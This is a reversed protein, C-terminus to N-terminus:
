VTTLHCISKTSRRTSRASVMGWRSFTKENKSGCVCHNGIAFQKWGHLQPMWQEQRRVLVSQNQVVLTQLEPGLHSSGNRHRVPQQATVPFPVDGAQTEVFPEASRFVPFQQFEVDRLHDHGLSALEVPAIFLPLTPFPKARQAMLVRRHLRVDVTQFM